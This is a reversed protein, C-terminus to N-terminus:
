PSQDSYGYHIRWYPGYNLRRLDDWITTRRDIELATLMGDISKRLPPSIETQQDALVGILYEVVHFTNGATASSNDFHKAWESPLLSTKCENLFTQMASEQAQYQKREAERRLRKADRDVKKAMM